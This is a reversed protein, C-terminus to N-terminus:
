ADGAGQGAVQLVHTFTVMEFPQCGPPRRAPDMRDIYRCMLEIIEARLQDLEAPRAFIVSELTGTVERVQPSLGSRTLEFARIRDIWHETLVKSLAAAASAAAPDESNEGVSLGSQALRWPRERGRGGGAEQIFGLRALMRLHYACATPSEGVVASAQTATLVGALGVAEILAFRTPHALATLSPADAITRRAPIAAPDSSRAAHESEGGAAAPPDVPQGAAGNVV